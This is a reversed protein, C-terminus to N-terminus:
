AAPKSKKKKGFFAELVNDIIGPNGNKKMVLVNAIDNALKHRVKNTILATFNSAGKPAAKEVGVKDKKPM